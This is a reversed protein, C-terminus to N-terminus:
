APHAPRTPRGRDFLPFAFFGLVFGGLHAQWAITSGGDTGPISIAGFLLNSVILMGSFMLVTPNNWLDKLPQLPRLAVSDPDRMAQMMGRDRPDFVFRVAGGMIASIGASAGVLPALSGWHVLLHAAAGAVTGAVLLALFRATGLRRVVPAGFTVLWLANMGLHLWDGHLLGYSALTAYKLWAPGFFFEAAAADIAELRAPFFALNIFLSSGVSSPAYLVVLHICALVGVLVVLLPPINFAPERRVPPPGGPGQQNEQGREPEMLDEQVWNSGGIMPLNIPTIAAKDGTLLDM